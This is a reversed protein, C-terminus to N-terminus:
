AAATKECIPSFFQYIQINLPTWYIRKNCFIPCFRSKFSCLNRTKIQVTPQNITLGSSNQAGTASQKGAQQTGIGGIANYNL